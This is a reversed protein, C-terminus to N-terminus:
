VLTKTLVTDKFTEDIKDYDIKIKNYKMMDPHIQLLEEDTLKFLNSNGKM